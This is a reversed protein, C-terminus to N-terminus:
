AYIGLGADSFMAFITIYSWILAYQGYGADGLWRVVLINFAFSLIKVLSKGAFGALSNRAVSAFDTQIPSGM